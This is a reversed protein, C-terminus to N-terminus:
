HYIATVEGSLGDAHVVYNAGGDNCSLTKSNEAAEEVSCGGPFGGFDVLKTATAQVSFAAGGPLDLIVDAGPGDAYIDGGTFNDLIEDIYLDISGNGTEVKLIEAVGVDAEIPGNDSTIEVDYAKATFNVDVSGNNQDVIFVGAFDEPIEVIIEAALTSSAGSDRSTRITIDGDDEILDTNLKEFEGQIIDDETDYARLVSPKFTANVSASNSRVVEVHGNISQVLIQGGSDVTGTASRDQKAEFRKLSKACITKGDEGKDAEAEDAPEGNDTCDSLECGTTGALLGAGLSLYTLFRRALKM